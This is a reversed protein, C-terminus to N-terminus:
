DITVDIFQKGSKVEKVIGSNDPDAYQPEIAFWGPPAPTNAGKGAKAGPGVNSRGKSDSANQLRPDPSSVCVKAKGVPVDTVTYTGDKIDASATKGDDFVFGLTGSVVPKGKYTVKGTVEASGGSCGATIGLGLMLVMLSLTRFLNRPNALQSM